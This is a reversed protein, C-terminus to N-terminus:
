GFREKYDERAAMLRKNVTDIDKKPTSIGSTSKKKFAHLMYIAKEFKATFVVRYTDTNYRETIKLVENSKSGDFPSVNDPREGTEIM